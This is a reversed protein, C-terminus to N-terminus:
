SAGHKRIISGTMGYQKRGNKGKGVVRAMGVGGKYTYFVYWM